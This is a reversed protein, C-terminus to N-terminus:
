PSQIIITLGSDLTGFDLGFPSQSASFDWPGGLVGGSRVKLCLPTNQYFLALLLLPEFHGRKSMWGFFNVLHVILDIGNPLGAVTSSVTFTIKFPFFKNFKISKMELLEQELFWVLWVLSISPLIVCAM